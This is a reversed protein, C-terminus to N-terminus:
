ARHSLHGIRNYEPLVDNQDDVVLLHDEAQCGGGNCFSTESGSHSFVSSGSKLAVYFQFIFDTQHQGVNHHGCDVANLQGLPNQFNFWVGLNQQHRAIGIDDQVRLPRPLRQREDSFWKEGGVETGLDLGNKPSRGFGCM